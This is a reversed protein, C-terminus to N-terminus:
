LSRARARESARESAGREERERERERRRHIYYVLSRIPSRALGPAEPRVRIEDEKYTNKEEGLSERVRMCRAVIERERERERETEGAPMM